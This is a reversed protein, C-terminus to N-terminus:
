NTPIYDSGGHNVKLFTSQSTLRILLQSARTVNEPDGPSALSPFRIPQSILLKLIVLWYDFYSPECTTEIYMRNPYVPIHRLM